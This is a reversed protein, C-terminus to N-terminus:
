EKRGIINPRIFKATKGTGSAGLPVQRLASLAKEMYDKQEDASMKEFVARDILPHGHSLLVSAVRYAFENEDDYFETIDKSERGSRELAEKMMRLLPNFMEISLGIPQIRYGIQVDQIGMLHFLLPYPDHVTEKCEECQYDFITKDVIKPFLERHYDNISDYREIRQTKGCKPCTVVHLSVKSM